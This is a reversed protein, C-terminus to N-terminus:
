VKAAHQTDEIFRISDEPTLSLSELRRMTALYSNVAPPEEFYTCGVQTPIFAIDPHPEKRFGFVTFPGDAPVAGASFPLVRIRVNPRNALETLYGLQRQLVAAGGVARRLASEAIVSDIEVARRELSGRRELLVELRRELSDTEKASRRAALVARAYEHDQLLDPVTETAYSCVSDAEAELGIYFKREPPLVDGYLEWWGKARAHRALEVLHDRHEPTAHCIEALAIVAEIAVGQKASEIKSVKGQQWGLRNAVDVHTMGASHRLKKLESALVRRRVAPSGSTTAM